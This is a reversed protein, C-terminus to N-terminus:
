PSNQSITYRAALAQHLEAMLCSAVCIGFVIGLAVIKPHTIISTAITSKINRLVTKKM